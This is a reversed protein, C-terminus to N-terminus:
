EGFAGSMARSVVPRGVHQHQVEVTWGADRLEVAIEDAMVVSRHRGGVCGVAVVVQRGAAQSVRLFEGALVATQAIIHAAGPTTLVRERVLPDLGTLQRLEPSVHPDRLVERVDLTVEARPPDGHAYGFSLVVAEPM